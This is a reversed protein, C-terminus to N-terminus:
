LMEKQQNGSDSPSIVAKKMPETEDVPAEGGLSYLLMYASRQKLRNKVIKQLTTRSAFTDDFSVWVLKSTSETSGVPADRDMRIADATYHGSSASGGIHHVVSKLSYPKKQSSAESEASVGDDTQDRHVAYADLSLLPPISVQAKNKKLIYEVPAISPSPSNPPNNEGNSTPTSTPREVVLFRKLHLLLV